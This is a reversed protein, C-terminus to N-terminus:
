SKERRYPSSLYRKADRAQDSEEALAVVQRYAAQAQDRRNRLDFTQGLRLWATAATNLDLRQHGRAAKSLNREAEPLDNYWFQINGRAFDIREEVLSGYGTVGSRRLSEIKALPALAKEKDGQDAWMQSLEFLFLYNRPFRRVLNDLLPIAEQPRKERRYVVGLLIQADVANTRGKAAVERLEEIGKKKDGRIGGLFGLMRMYGPLSGVVYDHVGEVLKADTFQPDIELVRGCLKRSATLDRLSDLYAKRVLFNWNGRLGHAVGMAYLGHVSKPDADIEAQALEMAKALSDMFRKEVEPPPHMRERRLFPNNGTVLESELAGAKFMERYLIAQALHNYREPDSPKEQLAREFNAVSADYELNYFRDFGRETATQAAAALAFACLLSL